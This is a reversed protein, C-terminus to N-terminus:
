NIYIVHLILLNDKFQTEIVRIHHLMLCLKGLTLKLWLKTLVPALDFM